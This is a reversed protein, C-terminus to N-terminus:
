LAHTGMPNDPGPGYAEKLDPKEARMRPTPRWVPGETKRVVSTVGMPTALGERGVGIPFSVPESGDEPYFFLRMDAINIVIGQHPADPLIFRTPLIIDTGKGPIWPDVYPNAARMETFGLNYDRALHVFTDVNQTKYEIIDGIYPQDYAASVQTPALTILFSLATILLYPKRM